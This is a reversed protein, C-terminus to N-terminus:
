NRGKVIGKTETERSLGIVKFIEEQAESGIGREM